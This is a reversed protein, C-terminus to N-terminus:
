ECTLWGNRNFVVWAESRIESLIPHEQTSEVACQVRRAGFRRDIVERGAKVYKIRDEQKYSKTKAHFIFCDIAVACLFGADQARLVFDVEEGYGMPFSVEDLFGISDLVDRCIALCFGNLQLTLPYPFRSTLNACWNNIDRLTSLGSNVSAGIRPDRFDPISQWGGFNSLPGVLGIQRNSDMCQCIMEIWGSIAITDSNMLIVVDRNSERLGANAARCFGSGKERRILLVNRYKAQFDQCIDRTEFDSGDDVIILRDNEALTPVISSLCALVDSPSNHVPVVVDVDARENPIRM